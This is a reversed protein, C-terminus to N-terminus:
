MQYMDDQSLDMHLDKGVINGCKHCTKTEHQIKERMILKISIVRKKNCKVCLEKRKTRVSMTGADEFKVKGNALMDFAVGAVSTAEKDLKKKKEKEIQDLISGIAGKGM